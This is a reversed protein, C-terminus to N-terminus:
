DEDDAEAIEISAVSKKSKKLSTGSEFQQRTRKRLYEVDNDDTQAWELVLRRGYLHTSQCLSEMARKADFKTYYEVFVFGRHSGTGVMKKPMRVAKIEGFTKFLSLIESEKAQFPVNRVLIKNGTQNQVNSKKREHAVEAHLTRNSKKLELTHGRLKTQQLTKLANMVARQSYFQIFGYGMSLLVEPRSPDKKKAVTINAIRGCDKFHEKIDDETTDFNLNKIFLTTEPEPEENIEDNEADNRSSSNENTTEANDKTQDYPTSFTNEPAWELYLPLHKFKSYALTRFATRAELPEIFEVVATIGNPPLLVRGLVGFKEFMTRIEVLDTDAPLNKVLIVTKSRNTVNQNFVDLKVGNNVLFDRTQNVLQTEGLAMHVAANESFLIEEKSTEYNTAVVDAVANQGLFLTNWNYASKSNKKLKELKKTKFSSGENDVMGDQSDKSKGPLLHLMRGHFITGDLNTYALVAHEPMLFTIVAYGKSTRTLKDIPVIVETVPGYKEFLKQLEDEDVAYPLNRVFVRGSEAICEENKLSDIQTKWKTPRNSDNEESKNENEKGIKKSPTISHVFIQKGNIFSKNKVLAKKIDKENKFGVYAIGKIKPPIRISDVKLPRFFEKIDKKKIKYPLGRLGLSYFNKNEASRIEIEDVTIAKTKLKLYDADSINPNAAIKKDEDHDNEEEEEEEEANEEKASDVDENSAKSEENYAPLSLLDKNELLDGKGHVELYEVFTPDTKYKEILQKLEPHLSDKKRLKTIREAVKKLSLDNNQHIKKYATTEPCYKSWSRPKNTDGLQACQQVSIRTSNLYTKDFYDIAARAESEDQFGIFGFRRFKGSPTYKLQVDTIFGKQGFQERLKTETIGDPLNKIIIRSM